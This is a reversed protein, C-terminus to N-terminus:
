WRRGASMGRLFLLPSRFNDLTRRSNL